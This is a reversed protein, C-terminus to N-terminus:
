SAEWTPILLTRSSYTIAAFFLSDNVHRSQQQLHSLLNYTFQLPFKVDLLLSRRNRSDHNRIFRLQFWSRFVGLHVPSVRLRIDPLICDSATMNIMTMKDRCSPYLGIATVHHQAIRVTYPWNVHLSYLTFNHTNPPQLDRWALTCGAVRSGSTIVCCWWYMQM